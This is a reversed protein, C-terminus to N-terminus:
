ANTAGGHSAEEINKPSNFNKLQDRTFKATHEFDSM